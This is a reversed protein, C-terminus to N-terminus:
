LLLNKIIGYLLVFDGDLVQVVLKDRKKIGFDFDSEKLVAYRVEKESLSEAEKMEASLKSLVLDGVFLVDVDKEKNDLIYRDTLFIYKLDGATKGARTLAMAFDSDKYMLNRLDPILPSSNDLKYVLKNGDRQSQLIETKELNILERRIANIEEDLERVLGRVHNKINPNFLFYKLLKIRVKSIFLNKLM